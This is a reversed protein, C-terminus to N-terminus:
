VPTEMYRGLYSDPVDHISSYCRCHSQDSMCLQCSDCTYCVDDFVSHEECIKCAALVPMDDHDIYSDFELSQQGPKKWGSYAPKDCYSRNSYWTNKDPSWHGESENFIYAPYNSSTSLMVLKSYGIYEEVMNFMYDDDIWGAPLQKLYEDCFVRTDSRPDGKEMLVPIIGNHILTMSDGVRFPHCNDINVGGHTAIRFHVAFMSGPNQDTARDYARIFADKSMYKEVQLKDNRDFYTFGGGDPNSSWSNNIDSISLPCGAEHYIAICM